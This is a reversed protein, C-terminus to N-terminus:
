KAGGSVAAAGQANLPLLPLTSKGLDRDVVTKTKLRTLVREMTELYMRQRTVKEAKSYEALTATFKAADGKARLVREQKYGEAEREIQRAEGRAKPILDEQYGRAQNILKEKEERARVVDHFADKVEDPADVAQLKIETIHIGSQYQDMLKQMLFQTERQVEERGTTIVEDISTRGVMSRLSVEATSRLTGEADDLRFLYLSPDKIKFQIIMQAEVINEDGTLMLAEGQIREEGRFGVEVQQIKEVNVKDYRQVFPFVFHLGPGRKGSERGLTRIVAQEGPAVTFTGLWSVLGVGGLLFLWKLKGLSQRFMETAQLVADAPDHRPDEEDFQNRM